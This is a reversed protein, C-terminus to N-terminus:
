EKRRPGKVITKGLYSTFFFEANLFKTQVSTHDCQSPYNVSLNLWVNVSLHKPKEPQQTDTNFPTNIMERMNRNSKDSTEQLLSADERKM